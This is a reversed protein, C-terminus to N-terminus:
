AAAEGTIRVELEVGQFSIQERVLNLFHVVEPSPPHTTDLIVRLPKGVHAPYAEALEGDLAFSLYANLKEQLQFLQAEGGAWRRREIMVLWLEGRGTDHMLADIVGPYELGRSGAPPPTPADPM